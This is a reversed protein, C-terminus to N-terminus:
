RGGELLAMRVERLAETVNAESIVGHGRLDKFIDQLKYGLQSFMLPYIRFEFKSNRYPNAASRALYVPDIFARGDRACPLSLDKSNRIEFKSNRMTEGRGISTSRGAPRPSSAARRERELIVTYSDKALPKTIAYSVIKTRPDYKAPVLGIGSIRMKSAAPILAGMTALNAKITPTTNDITSGEIPETVM